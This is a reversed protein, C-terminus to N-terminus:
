LDDHEQGDEGTMLDFQNGIDNLTNALIKVLSKIWEGEKTNLIKNQEEEDLDEFVVNEYKGSEQNKSRFYVGSLNRRTKM